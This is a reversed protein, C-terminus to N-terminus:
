NDREDIGEEMLGELEELPISHRRLLELVANRFGVYHPHRTVDVQVYDRVRDMANLLTEYTSRIERIASISVQYMGEGEAAKKLRELDQRQEQLDDLMRRGLNEMNLRTPDYSEVALEKAAAAKVKSSYRSVATRSLNYKDAIEQYTLSGKRIAEEVEERQPHVEISSKNAM